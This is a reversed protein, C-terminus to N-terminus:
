GGKNISKRYMWFSFGLIVALAGVVTVISLFGTPSGFLVKLM